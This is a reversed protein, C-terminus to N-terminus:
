QMIFPQYGHEIQTIYIDGLIEAYALSITREKIESERSRIWDAIDSDSKMPSNVRKEFYISLVYRQLYNKYSRQFKTFDGNFLPKINGKALSPMTHPLPYQNLQQLEEFSEKLQNDSVINELMGTLGLTEFFKDAEKSSVDVTVRLQQNKM